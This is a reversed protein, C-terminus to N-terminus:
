NIMDFFSVQDSEQLGNLCGFKRLLDATSNGIKARKKLNDISSIPTEEHCVKYISEALENEFSIPTNLKKKIIFENIYVDISKM